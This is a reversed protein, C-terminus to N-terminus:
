RLIEFGTFQFKETTDGNSYRGKQTKFICKLPDRFVRVTMRLPLSSNGIVGKKISKIYVGPM